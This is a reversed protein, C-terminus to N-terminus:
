IFQNYKHVIRPYEVPRFLDRYIIRIGSLALYKEAIVIISSCIFGIDSTGLVLCVKIRSTPTKDLFFWLYRCFIWLLTSSKRSALSCSTGCRVKCHLIFYLNSHAKCFFVTSLILLKISSHSLIGTLRFGGVEHDYSTCIYECSTNAYLIDVTISCHSTCSKIM